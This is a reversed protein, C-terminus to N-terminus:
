RLFEAVVRASEGEDMQWFVHGAGQLVHLRSNPVQKDLLEANAFPILRDADGHIILTEHPIEGLRDALDFTMVANMQNLFGRRPRKAALARDIADEIRQPDAALWDETYNVWLMKRLLERPDKTASTFQFSELVDAEPQIQDGGGHGTCGLVLKDIVDPCSLAMQQAIMGGMSIGMVHTKKWGVHEVLRAADDAMMQVTYPMDPSGSEGMGRNDYILVPREKALREAFDGWDEKVGTWGQILVLPIGHAEPHLVRYALIVGDLEAYQTATTTM